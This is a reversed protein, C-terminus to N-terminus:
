DGFFEFPMRLSAIVPTPVTHTQNYYDQMEFMLKHAGYTYNHLRGYHRKVRPMGAAKRIEQTNYCFREPQGFGQVVIRYSADKENECILRITEPLEQTLWSDKGIIWTHLVAPRRSPHRGARWHFYKAVVLELPEREAMARWMGGRPCELLYGDFLQLRYESGDLHVVVM